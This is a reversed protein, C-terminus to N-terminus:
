ILDRRIAKELDIGDRADWEILRSKDKKMGAVRKYESYIENVHIKAPDNIIKLTEM